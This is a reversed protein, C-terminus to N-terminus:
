HSVIVSLMSSVCSENGHLSVLLNGYTSNYPIPLIVASGQLDGAHELIMYSTLRSSEVGDTM